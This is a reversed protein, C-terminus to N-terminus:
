WGGGTRSAFELVEQEGLKRSLDNAVKRYTTKVLSDRNINTIECWRNVVSEIEIAEKQVWEWEDEGEKQIEKQEGGDSFYAEDVLTLLDRQTMPKLVALSNWFKEDDYKLQGGGNTCGGPCAMVEVYVSESDIGENAKKAAIRRAAASSSPAKQAGFRPLTRTPSPKLRRVLNQINRFGYCRSLKAIIEGESSPSILLYDITDINRGQKARVTSGPYLSLLSSLIYSLAGGSTGAAAARSSRNKMRTSLFDLIEPDSFISQPPALFFLSPKQSSLAAFDVGRAETLSLVERTTIVCDVDRVGKVESSDGNGTKWWATSTLEGRAGELKKDFCPMVAVVYVDDPSKVTGQAVLLAKLFTGAIAQPSKITSLHPILAPHTSELYCIFGPCSSTLIPQKNNDEEHINGLPHKQTELIEQASYHLAIRRFPNSDVVADFGKEGPSGVLGTTLFQEIMEGARKEDVSFAVGLAARTQPSVVAVFKKDPFRALSELVETHSQMSVLVAESSTVCGSCALCDTLSIQAIKQSSSTNNSADEHTVSLENNPTAAPTPLSEIPKICVLSPAIFDNLAEASLIASM